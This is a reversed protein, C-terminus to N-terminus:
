SFWILISFYLNLLYKSTSFFFVQYLIFSHSPLIMFSIWIRVNVVPHQPFWSSPVSLLLINKTLSFTEGGWHVHGSVRHSLILGEKGSSVTILEGTVTTMFSM